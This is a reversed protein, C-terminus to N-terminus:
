EGQALYLNFPNVPDVAISLTGEINLNDGTVWDLLPTWRRQLFDWRYAGGIDTRAFFLKPIIPHAVLGTVFGGGVIQVNHFQYTPTAAQATAALVLAAIIIRSGATFRRM